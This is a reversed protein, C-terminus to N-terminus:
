SMAPSLWDVPTLDRGWEGRIKTSPVYGPLKDHSEHGAMRPPLVHRAPWQMIPLARATALLECQPWSCPSVTTSPHAPLSSSRSPLGPPAASSPAPWCCPVAPATRGRGPTQPRQRSATRSPSCTSSAQWRLHKLTEPPFALSQRYPETILCAPQYTDPPCMPSSNPSTPPPFMVLIRRPLHAAPVQDMDVPRSPRTLSTSAQAATM